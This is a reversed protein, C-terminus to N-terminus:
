FHLTGDGLIGDIPREPIRRGLTPACTRRKRQGDIVKRAMEAVTRAKMRKARGSASCVKQAGTCCDSEGGSKRCSRCFSPAKEGSGHPGGCPSSCSQCEAPTSDGRKSCAASM